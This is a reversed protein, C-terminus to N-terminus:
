GELGWLWAIVYRRYKERAEQRITSATIQPYSTGSTPISGVHPQGRPIKLEIGPGPGLSVM